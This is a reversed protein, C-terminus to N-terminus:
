HNNNLFKSNDFSLNRRADTRRLAANFTRRCRKGTNYGLYSNLLSLNEFEADPSLACAKHLLHNYMRREAINSIRSYHPHVTVGLFTNADNSSIISCKHPHLTLQLREELYAKCKWMCDNLYDASPHILIADDVYRGYHHIKLERKVYHDFSNLYLNSFMQSDVDGLIIGCGPKAYEMRKQPPVRALLGPNGVFKCDVLPDRMIIERVVYKLWDIDGLRHAYRDIVELTMNLLLQRNISMFYGSIDLSLVHVERQWNNTASRLHHEFRHIGFLTGKGKRCSYSDYIFIDELVPMLLMYPIHSVVRDAFEPAFIERPVPEVNPFVIPPKPHWTRRHLQTALDALLREADVEFGIQALSSRENRRASLYSQVCLNLIDDYSYTMFLYFKSARM